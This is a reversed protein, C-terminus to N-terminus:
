QKKFAEETLHWIQEINIKKEKFTKSYIEPKSNEMAKLFHLNRFLYFDKISYNKDRIFNAKLILKTPLVTVEQGHNICKHKWHLLFTLCSLESCEQPLVRGKTDRRVRIPEQSRCLASGLWQQFFEGLFRREAEQFRISNPNWKWTCLPSTIFTSHAKWSPLWRHPLQPFGSPYKRHIHKTINYFYTRYFGTWYSCLKCRM